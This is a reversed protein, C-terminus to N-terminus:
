LILRRILSNAHTHTDMDRRRHLFYITLSTITVDVITVLVGQPDAVAPSMRRSGALHVGPCHVVRIAGPVMLQSRAAYIAAGVHGFEMLLRPMM